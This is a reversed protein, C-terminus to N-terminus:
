GRPEGGLAAEIHGPLKDWWSEWGKQGKWTKGAVCIRRDGQMGIDSSAYVGPISALRRVIGKHAKSAPIRFVVAAPRLASKGAETSRIEVPLANVSELWKNKLDKDVTLGRWAKKPSDTRDMLMQPPDKKYVTKYALTPSNAKGAMLLRLGMGGGQGSPTFDEGGRQYGKVKVGNRVHPRVYGATKELADHFGQEFPTM